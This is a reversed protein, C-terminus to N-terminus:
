LPEAKMLSLVAEPLSGYSREADGRKIVKFALMVTEGSRTFRDVDGIRLVLPALENGFLATDATLMRNFQAWVVALGLKQFHFPNTRVNAVSTFNAATVATGLRALQLDPRDFFLKERAAVAAAQDQAAKVATGLRALQLDPRDFFLKERAAVAATQDQAAKADAATKDSAAKERAAQLERERADRTRIEELQAAHRAEAQVQALHRDGIGNVIGASTDVGGADLDFLVKFQGDNSQFWVGRIRRPPGLPQQPRASTRDCYEATREAAQRFYSADPNVDYDGKREDSIDYHLVPTHKWLWFMECDVSTVKFKDAAQATGATFLCGAALLLSLRRSTFDIPM